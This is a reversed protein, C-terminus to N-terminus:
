IWTHGKSDQGSGEAEAAVNDIGLSTKATADLVRITKKLDERRQEEREREKERSNRKGFLLKRASSRRPPKAAEAEKAWAKPGMQQYPTIPIAPSRVERARREQAAAIEEFTPGTDSPRPDESGSDTGSSQGSWSWSHHFPPLTTAPRQAAPAMVGRGPYAGEDELRYSDPIQSSPSLPTPYPKPRTMAPDQPEPLRTMPLPSRSADQLWLPPPVLSPDAPNTIRASVHPSPSAERSAFVIHDPYPM